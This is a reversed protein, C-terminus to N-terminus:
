AESGTKLKKLEYSIQGINADVRTVIVVFRNDDQAQILLLRNEFELLLMLLSEKRLRDAIMGSETMLLSLSATLGSADAALSGTEERITGDEVVMAALVGDYKLFRNLNEVPVRENV